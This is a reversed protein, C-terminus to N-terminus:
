KLYQLHVIVEILMSFMQEFLYLGDFLKFYLKIKEIQLTFYQRM